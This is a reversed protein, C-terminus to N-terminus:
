PATGEPATETFDFGLFGLIKLTLEDFSPMNAANQLRDLGTEMIDEGALTARLYELEELFDACDCMDKAIRQGKHLAETPDATRKM